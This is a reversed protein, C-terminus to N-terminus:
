TSVEAGETRAMVDWKGGPTELDFEEGEVKVTLSGGNLEVSSM